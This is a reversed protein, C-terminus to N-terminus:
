GCARAWSGPSSSCRSGPRSRTRPSRRACTTSGRRRRSGRPRSRRDGVRPPPLQRPQAARREAGPVAVAHRAEAAARRARRAGRALAAGAPPQRHDQRARRGRREVRDPAVNLLGAARDIDRRELAQWEEPPARDRRRVDAAARVAALARRRDGGARGPHVGPDAPARAAPQQGGRDHENCNLLVIALSHEPRSPRSGESGGRSLSIAAASPRSSPPTPPGPLRVCTRMRAHFASSKTLADGSGPMFPHCPEASPRVGRGSRPRRRRTGTM